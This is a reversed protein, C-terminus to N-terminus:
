GPPLDARDDHGATDLVRRAELLLDLECDAYLVRTAQVV